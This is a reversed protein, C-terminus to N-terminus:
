LFDSYDVLTVPAEPNGLFALNEATKGEVLLWDTEAPAAAVEDPTAVPSEPVAEVATTPTPLPTATAAVAAEQAPTTPTPVPATEGCAALLWCLFLLVAIRSVRM